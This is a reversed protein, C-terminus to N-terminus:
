CTCVMKTASEMKLSRRCVEKMKAWLQPSHSFFMFVDNATEFFAVVSPDASNGKPCVSCELGAMM